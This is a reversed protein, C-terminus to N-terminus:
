KQKSHQELYENIIEKAKDADSEVVKIISSNYSSGNAWGASISENLVNEIIYNINNDSLLSAIYNAEIDSGSYMEIYNNKM